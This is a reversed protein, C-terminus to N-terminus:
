ELKAARRYVDAHFANILTRMKADGPPMLQSGFVGCVGASRDIFWNLNAAGGWMLAGNRWYEHEEGTILLGGLGYDRNIPPSPFLLKMDPTEMFEALAQRSAPTLQPQFMLAATESSLLRGDDLLLSYAVEFCDRMSAILGHGGFCVKLGDAVTPAGPKEVAPGEPGDRFAMPVRRDSVNPDQDPLFTSGGPVGLPGWINRKMYEDLSLGSLKEIVVGAWDLGTGYAWGEGPEFLLPLDFMEDVTGNRLEHKQMTRIKGLRKDLFPYGAGSTHAILSRLTIPNQRRRVTLTGDDAVSTLVGKKALSPLLWSLDEDLAVLGRDVLQLAAVSTPLKTMSSIVMATDLNYPTRGQRSFAKAYDVKGDKSKAVVVIGPATGNSVASELMDNLSTM